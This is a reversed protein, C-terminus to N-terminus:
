RPLLERELEAIREKLHERDGSFPLAQRFCALAEARKGLRSLCDAKLVLIEAMALDDPPTLHPDPEGRRDLERAAIWKRGAANLANCAGLPDSHRIIQGKALELEFAGPNHVIGENVFTLAKVPEKSQFALWFAGIEYAAVNHKDVKVAVWFWPLVEAVERKTELHMHGSPRTEGILHRYWAPGRYAGALSDDHADEGSPDHGSDHGEHEGPLCNGAEDHDHGDHDYEHEGGIHALHDCDGPALGGHFYRDGAQVMRLSLVTRSEGFIQSILDVDEPMAAQRHGSLSMGLALATVWIALIGLAKM